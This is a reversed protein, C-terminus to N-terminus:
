HDLCKSCDSQNAFIEFCIFEVIQRDLLSLSGGEADNRPGTKVRRMMLRLELGLMELSESRVRSLPSIASIGV